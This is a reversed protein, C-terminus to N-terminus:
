PALKLIFRTDNARKLSQLVILMIFHNVSLIDNCGLNSKFLDKKADVTIKLLLIKFIFDISTNPVQRYFGKNEELAFPCEWLATKLWFERM